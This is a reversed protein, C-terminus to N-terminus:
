EIEGARCRNWAVPAGPSETILRCFGMEGPARDHRAGVVAEVLRARRTLEGM